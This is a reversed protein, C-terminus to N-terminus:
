SGAVRSVERDDASMLRALVVPGVGLDTIIALLGLLGFVFSFEGWDDPSLMRATIISGTWGMMAIVVRSLLLAISNNVAARNNEATTM